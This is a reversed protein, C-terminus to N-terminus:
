LLIREVRFWWSLSYLSDTLIEPSCIHYPERFRLTVSICFVLFNCKLLKLAWSIARYEEYSIIYGLLITRPLTVIEDGLGDLFPESEHGLDCLRGMMRTMRSCIRRMKMVMQSYARKMRLAFKRAPSPFVGAKGILIVVLAVM